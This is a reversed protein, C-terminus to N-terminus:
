GFREYSHLSRLDLDVWESPKTKDQSTKIFINGNFNSIKMQSLIFYNKITFTTTGENCCTFYEM